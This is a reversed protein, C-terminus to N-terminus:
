QTCWYFSPKWCRWNACHRRNAHRNAQEFYRTQV